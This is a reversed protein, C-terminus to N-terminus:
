CFYWFYKQNNKNKIYFVIFFALSWQESKLITFDIQLTCTFLFSQLLSMWIPSHSLPRLHTATAWLGTHRFCTLLKPPLSAQIQSSSSLHFYVSHYYSCLSMTVPVLVPEFVVKKWPLPMKLLGRSEAPHGKSKCHM